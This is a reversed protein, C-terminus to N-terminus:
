KETLIKRVANAPEFTNVPKGLLAGIGALRKGEELAKLVLDFCLIIPVNRRIENTKGATKIGTLYPM